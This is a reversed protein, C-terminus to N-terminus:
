LLNRMQNIVGQFTRFKRRVLQKLGILYSMNGVKPFFINELTFKVLKEIKKPFYYYGIEQYM